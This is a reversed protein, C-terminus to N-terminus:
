LEYPSELSWDWKNGNRWKDTFHNQKGDGYFWLYDKPLVRGVNEEGNKEMVWRGLVDEVLYVIEDTVPHKPNYGHYQENQTVVSIIDNPIYKLDSDVRNLITWVVAAQETKSCGRAEGYVTKAIYKIEDRYIESIDPVDEEVVEVAVSEQITPADYTVSMVMQETRPATYKWEHIVIGLLVIGLMFMTYGTWFMIKARNERRKKKKESVAKMKRHLELGYMDYFEM